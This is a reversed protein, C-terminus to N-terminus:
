KCYLGGRGDPTCHTQNGNVQNGGNSFSPQIIQMPPPPATYTKYAELNARQQQITLEQQQQQQFAAADRQQQQQANILDQQQKKQNLDQRIYMDKALMKKHEEVRAKTFDGWSLKGEYLGVILNQENIFWEGYLLFIAPPFIQQRFNRGDDFCAIRAEYWDKIIKKDSSTPKTKDTLMDIRPDHIMGLDVKSKLKIFAANAELKGFCTDTQVNNPQTFEFLKTKWTDYPVVKGGKSNQAMVWDMYASQSSDVAQAM